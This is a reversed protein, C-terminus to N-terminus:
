PPTVVASLTATVTTPVPAPKRRMTSWVSVTNSPALPVYVTRNPVAGPPGTVTPAALLTFLSIVRASPANVNVPPAVPVHPVFRPVISPDAVIACM